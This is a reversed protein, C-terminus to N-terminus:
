ANAPPERDLEDPKEMWDRYNQWAESDEKVRDTIYEQLQAKESETEAPLRKLSEFLQRTTFVTTASHNGQFSRVMDTHGSATEAWVQIKYLDAPVFYGLLNGDGDKVETLERGQSLVLRVVDDALLSIM